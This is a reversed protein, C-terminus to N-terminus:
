TIANLYFPQQYIHAFCEACTARDRDLRGTICALWKNFGGHFNTHFSFIHVSCRYRVGVDEHEQGPTTLQQFDPRFPLRFRRPGGFDVYQTEGLPGALASYRAGAPLQLRYAADPMLQGQLKVEACRM